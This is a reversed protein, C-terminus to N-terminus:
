RAKLVALTRDRHERELVAAPTRLVDETIEAAAPSAEALEPEPQDAASRITTVQAGKKGALRRITDDITEVRDAMKLAVADKAGFMRGQGFTDNVTAVDVGRGRAVAKVFMANYRNVEGQFYELDAESLPEYPNGVGKWDGATILTVKVGAAELHKSWDDHELIVGISGVEGSPTVVVEECQSLLYYGLSAAVCNAVGVVRKKGRANYIVQAFEESQYVSGGPTHFDLLVDAIAPDDVLQQFQQMLRETSAGGSIEDFYSMKPALVGYIPLIAITPPADGAVQRGSAAARADAEALRAQIVDASLKGVLARDRAIAKMVGLTSPLIAWPTEHLFRLVHAYRM